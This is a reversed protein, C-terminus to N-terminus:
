FMKYLKNKKLYTNLIIKPYKYWKLEVYQILFIYFQYNSITKYIFKLITKIHLITDSMRITRIYDGSLITKRSCHNILSILNFVIDMITLTVQQFVLYEQFMSYRGVKVVSLSLLLTIRFFGQTNNKNQFVIKMLAILILKFYSIM